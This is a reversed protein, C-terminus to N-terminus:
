VMSCLSSTERATIIGSFAPCIESCWVWM